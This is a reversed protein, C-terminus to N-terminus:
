LPMLRNVDDTSVGMDLLEKRAKARVLIAQDRKVQLELKFFERREDPEAKLLAVCKAGGQLQHEVRARKPEEDHLELCGGRKFGVKALEDEEEDSSRFGVGANSGVDEDERCDTQFVLAATPAGESVSIAASRMPRLLPEIEPYYPCMHLVERETMKSANYHRLGRSRLWREANQLQNELTWLRANISGITRYNIGHGLLRDSIEYTMELRSGDGKGASKLWRAANGPAELWQLLVDMSSPGDSVGDDDWSPKGM